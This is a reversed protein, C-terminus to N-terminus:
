GASKESVKVAMLLRDYETGNVIVYQFANEFCGYGAFVIFDALDDLVQHMHASFNESKRTIIVTLSKAPESKDANSLDHATKATLPPISLTLVYGFVHLPQSGLGPDKV